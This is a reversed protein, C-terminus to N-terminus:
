KSDGEALSQRLAEFKARAEAEAKLADARSGGVVVRKLKWQSRPAYQFEIFWGGQGDKRIRTKFPPFVRDTDNM